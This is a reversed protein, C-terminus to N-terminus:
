AQQRCVVHIGDQAEQLSKYAPFIRDLGTLTLIKLVQPKETVLLISGGVQRVIRLASILGALTASELLELAQLDVIHCFRGNRVHERFAARLRFATLKDFNAPVNTVVFNQAATRM